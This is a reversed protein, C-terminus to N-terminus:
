WTARAGREEDTDDGAEFGYALPHVAGCAPCTRLAADANFARVRDLVKSWFPLAGYRAVNYEWSYM